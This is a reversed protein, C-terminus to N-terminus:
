TICTYLYPQSYYKLQYLYQLAANIRQITIGDYQEDRGLV